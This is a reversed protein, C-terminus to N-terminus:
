KTVPGVSVRDFTALTTETSDHSTLALGVFINPGMPITDVAIAKGWTKGDKSLFASFVNGKRTLKIWSPARAATSLVTNISESNPTKRRQLVAGQTRTVAVFANASGPDLSERMMIGAKEWPERNVTPDDDRQNQLSGVQAIIQGDGTLPRYAYHFGDSSGWIDAGAGRITFAGNAYSTAGAQGVDGIDAADWPAPAAGPATGGILLQTPIEVIFADLRNGFLNGTWIFYQGTVDLNGKAAKFYPDSGGGPADLNAMVPAVVLVDLSGDLRFCVIEDSRPQPSLANGWDDILRIGNSACAHQVEPPTGPRANTHSIFGAALATQDHDYYVVSADIPDGLKWLRVANQSSLGTGVVYGFGNDSHGMANMLSDPDTGYPLRMTAVSGQLDIIRNDVQTVVKGSPETVDQRNEKIVLWRGSQDIQCEDFTGTGERPFYTFASNPPAKSDFVFCGMDEGVAVATQTGDSCGAAECVLTASIFRDDYSSHPQDFFKDDAGFSGQIDFVTELKKTVVDFRHLQRDRNIGTNFIYLANPLTASFYWQLGDSPGWKSTIPNAPDLLPQKTIKRTVKNYTLLIPNRGGDDRNLGLFIFMTSSATHNNINRWYSYGVPMVCDGGGCDKPDTLRAGTTNYPPPFTFKGTKTPMFTRIANADVRPRISDSAANEIWGGTQSQALAPSCFAILWLLLCHFTKQAAM